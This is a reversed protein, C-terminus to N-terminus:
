AGRVQWAYHTFYDNDITGNDNDIAFVNFTSTNPNYALIKLYEDNDDYAISIPVYGFWSCEGVASYSLSTYVDEVSTYATNDTNILTLICSYANNGITFHISVKHTYIEENNASGGGHQAIYQKIKQDYHSLGTLDLYKAM